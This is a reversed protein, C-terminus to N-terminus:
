LGVAVVLAIHIHLQGLSASSLGLFRALAQGLV